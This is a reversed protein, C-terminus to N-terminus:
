STARPMKQISAEGKLSYREACLELREYADLEMAGASDFAGAGAKTSLEEM